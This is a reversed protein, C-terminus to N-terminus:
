AHAQAREGQGIRGGVDALAADRRDLQDAVAELADVLDVPLDLRPREEIALVGQALGFGGVLMAPVAPGSPGSCPTGIPMLSMKSVPSMGVSNPEGSHAPRVGRRSAAATARSRAAPATIMPLVTVM